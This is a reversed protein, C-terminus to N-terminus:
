IFLVKVQYDHINLHGIHISDFGGLFNALAFGTEAIDGNDGKGSM